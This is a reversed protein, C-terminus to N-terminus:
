SKRLTENPIRGVRGQSETSESAEKARMHVEGSADKRLLAGEWQSGTGLCSDGLWSSTGPWDQKYPQRGVGQTRCRWDLCGAVRLPAEWGQLSGLPLAAVSSYSETLSSM